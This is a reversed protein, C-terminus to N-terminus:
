DTVFIPALGQGELRRKIAAAAQRDAFRGVRV